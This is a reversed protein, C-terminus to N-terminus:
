FPLENMSFIALLMSIVIFGVVIAMILIMAPELFSIFRKVTNRLIKEYNEAVRLLMEDLRGTEEGVTIMQIALSPFVGTKTLPQALREGEKVRSYVIQMSGSVVRNGIIRRALEIGKLIPVGSKVLTGLTRAFRAVEIKKVLEGIVPMKLKIRDIRLRGQRTRSYRGFAFVAAAITAGLGWWYSRMFDSVQMLLRTSWPITAGLDSFIVAFKPIVYTMLIIISIGGVAVLFVPYIMASKIFEKLDQASELYVGLRKLVEELVGGAEGARVMNVYFISFVDPYRGFADSLGGGGQVTKLIDAVIRKLRRNESTEILISMSRDLPLGAELLISLDQTFLMVDKNTIWGGFDQLSFSFRTSLSGSSGNAQTIRIPILGMKQVRAAAEMADMSEISSQVIKGSSDTAKYRFLPM